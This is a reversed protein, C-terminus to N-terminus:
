EAAAQIADAQNKQRGLIYPRKTFADPYYGITFDQEHAM